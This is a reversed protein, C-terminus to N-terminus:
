LIALTVERSIKWVNNIKNLQIRKLVNDHYTSSQYAQHFDIVAIDPKNSKVKFNSLSVKIKDASVIRKRRQKLWEKHDPYQGTYSASYASAYQEFQQESWANAWNKVFQILQKKDAVTDVVPKVQAKAIVTNKAPAPAELQTDLKAIQAPTQIPKSDVIVPQQLESLETLQIKNLVNTPPVDDNLAKRYAESALGQYLTNLNKYATAYAPHTNLSAILLKVAEDYEGKQLYIIALNNRPEPLEPHASIVEQYYHIAQKAQNNKQFAFATLFLLRPDDPQQRLLELGTTSARAYQASDLETQMEQLTAAQAINIIFLSILITLIKPM